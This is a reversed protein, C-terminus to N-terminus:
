NNGNHSVEVKYCHSRALLYETYSNGMGSVYQEAIAHRAGECEQLTDYHDTAIVESNGNGAWFWLVFFVKTM